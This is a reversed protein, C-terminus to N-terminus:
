NSRQKEICILRSPPACSDGSFGYASSRNHNSVNIKAHNPEMGLNDTYNSSVSVYFYDKLNQEQFQVLSLNQRQDDRIFYAGCLIPEHLGKGEGRQTKLETTYSSRSFPQM